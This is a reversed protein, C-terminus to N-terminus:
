SISCPFILSYVSPIWFGFFLLVSFLLFAFAFAIAFSTKFFSFFVMSAM